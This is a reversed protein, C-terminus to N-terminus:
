AGIANAFKLLQNQEANTHMLVASGLVFVDVSDKVDEILAPREHNSPIDLELDAGTGFLVLGDVDKFEDRLMPADCAAIFLNTIGAHVARRALAITMKEPDIGDRHMTEDAIKSSSIVAVPRHSHGANQVVERLRNPDTMHSLIVSFYNPPMTFSDISRFFGSGFLSRDQKLRTAQKEHQSAEYLSIEKFLVKISAELENGDFAIRKDFFVAPLQIHQAMNGALEVDTVTFSVGSSKHIEAASPVKLSHIAPLVRRDIGQRLALIYSTTNNASIALCIRGLGSIELDTLQCEAEGGMRAQLESTKSM